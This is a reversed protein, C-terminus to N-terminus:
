EATVELDKVRLNGTMLQHLMTKFLSQLAAKRKQESEVKLYLSSLARAIREQEPLPPLPLLRNQVVHKPLRQRGTSGEMKSALDRRVPPYLLYYFLFRIDTINQNTRIPYVETTAYAFPAPLDRSVLCQKENELCPTIKAILLNGPECYVGSKIERGPRISYRLRGSGDNSIAEMPIFPVDEFSAIDLGRPKSTFYAVEEIKKVEWQEPVPGIETERLPVKEADAVPVPGYTFLHRMLSKKTERAAAIVKDQAEIAKQITSLVGAIAKQESLPPLPIPIARMVGQTLKGRTTGGIFISIDHYNLAYMLYYNVAVGNMAALVHAHNNVWFKGDMVYSSEEFRDWYGGDEALLLFEGDFLYRDIRDIIGNAGCYPFTGRMKQRDESRLPIRRKDYVNVVNGLSVLEWEEPLPGLETMKFGDAIDETQDSM